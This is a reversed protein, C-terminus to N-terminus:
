NIGEMMTHGNMEILVMEETTPHGVLCWAVLLFVLICCVGFNQWDFGDNVFIKVALPVLKM